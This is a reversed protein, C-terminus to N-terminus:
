IAGFLPSYSYVLQSSNSPANDTTVTIQTRTANITFGYNEFLVNPFDSSFLIASASKPVSFIKTTGDPSLKYHVMAGRPLGGNGGGRGRPIADIKRNLEKKLEDIGSIARINLREDNQLLELGNRISVPYKTLDEELNTKQEINEETELAVIRKELDSLDVPAPIRKEIKGIEDKMGKVANQIQEATNETFTASTKDIIKSIINLDSIHKTQMDKMTAVLARLLIALDEKSALSKTGYSLIDQVQKLQPNM